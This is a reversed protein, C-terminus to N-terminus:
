KLLKHFIRALTKRCPERSALQLAKEIAGINSSEMLLASVREYLWAGVDDESMFIKV